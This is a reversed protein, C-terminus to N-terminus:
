EVTLAIATTFKVRETVFRTRVNRVNNAGSFLRAALTQYAAMDALALVLTFDVGPATRWAQQVAPEREVCAAFVRFAEENQVDLTVESIAHLLSGAARPALVAVVREILGRSKLARVRRLVTAPSVGLEAALQQYTADADTQLRSLLWQDIQDFKQQM